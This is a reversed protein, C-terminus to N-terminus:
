FLFRIKIGLKQAIEHEWRAGTSTQWNKMFIIEAIKGSQFFPMFFEELIPQFYPLDSAAALEGFKQEFPIQNFVTAGSEKVSRITESFIKINQDRNGSGGTSIPGSVLSVPAPMRAIVAMAVALLESLATSKEVAAFDEKTWYYEDM